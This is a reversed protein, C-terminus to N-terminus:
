AEAVDRSFAEELRTEFPTSHWNVIKNERYKSTTKPIGKCSSASGSGKAIIPMEDLNRNSWRRPSPSAPFQRLEELTPAGIIPRDERSVVSKSGQSISKEPTLTEHEIFSTKRSSTTESSVLWNSLDQNENKFHGSKSKLDVTSQKFTPECSFSIRPAEQDGTFNEKQPKLPQTGEFKVVEWQTLNEVPNLVTRVDDSRYLVKGKTGTINSGQMALGSTTMCSNVEEVFLQASSNGTSTEVFEAPISEPWIAESALKGNEDEDFDGKEEEDDLDSIECEFEEEGDDCDRSNEYRHSPLHSQVSSANSDDKFHSPHSSSEGSGEEKQRDGGRNRELQLEISQNVSVPEYARINNDFTVKRRTCLILQEGLEIRCDSPM